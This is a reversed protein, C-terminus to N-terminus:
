CATREIKLSLSAAALPAKGGRGPNRRAGSWAGSGLLRRIVGEWVMNELMNDSLLNTVKFNYIWSYHHLLRLIKDIVSNNSNSATSLTGTNTFNM